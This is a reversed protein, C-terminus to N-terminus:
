GTTPSESLNSTVEDYSSKSATEHIAYKVWHQLQIGKVYASAAPRAKELHSFALKWDSECDARAMEHM